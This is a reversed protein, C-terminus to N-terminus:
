RIGCLRSAAAVDDGLREALKPPQADPGSLPDVVVVNRNMYGAPYEGGMEAWLAARALDVAVPDTDMGFICEAMVDPLMIRALRPDARGRLRAAFVSAIYRAAEVLFVGAGCAPDVALVQLLARPDRDAALMKVAQALSLRVMAAAAPPPTYFSGQEERQGPNLLTEYAAAVDSVDWDDMVLGALQCRAASIVDPAALHELPPWNLPPLGSRAAFQSMLLRMTVRDPEPHGSGAIIVRASVVIEAPKHPGPRNVPTAPVRKM